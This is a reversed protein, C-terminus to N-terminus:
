VQSQRNLETATLGTLGPGTAAATGVPPPMICASPMGTEPLAQVWWGGAAAEETALSRLTIVTALRREFLPNSCNMRRVACM